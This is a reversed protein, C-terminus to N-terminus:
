TIDTICKWGSLQIYHKDPIRDVYSGDSGGPAGAGHKYYFMLSDRNSAFVTAPAMAAVAMAGAIALTAMRRKM